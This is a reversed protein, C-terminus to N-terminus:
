LYQRQHGDIIHLPHLMSWESRRNEINGDEREDNDTDLFLRKWVSLNNEERDGDLLTLANLVIIIEYIAVCVFSPQSFLQLKCNTFDHIANQVDKLNLKGIWQKIDESCNTAIDYPTLCLQDTYGYPLHSLKESNWKNMHIMILQYLNM